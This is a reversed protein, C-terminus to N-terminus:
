TLYFTGMTSQAMQPNGFGMAMKCIMSGSEQIHPDMQMFILEMVVLNIMRGSDKMCMGMQRFSDVKETQWETLGNVKIYLYIKGFNNEKEMVCELFCKAKIDKEM